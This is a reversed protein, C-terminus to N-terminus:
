PSSFSINRTWSWDIADFATMVSTFTNIYNALQAQKGEYRRVKAGTLSQSVEAAGGFRIIEADIAAQTLTSEMVHLASGSIASGGSAADAVINRGQLKRVNDHHRKLEYKTREARFAAEAEYGEAATDAADKAAEGVKYAGFASGFAAFIEWM